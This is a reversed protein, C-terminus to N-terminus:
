CAAAWSRSSSATGCRPTMSPWWRRNPTEPPDASACKRSWRPHAPCLAATCAAHRGKGKERLSATDSCPPLVLDQVRFGIDATLRPASHVTSRLPWVALLLAAVASPVWSPERCRGPAVTDCVQQQNTALNWAKVSNDCGGSYVTAGDANWTSCLVPQEHSHAAKPVSSGNAQIEWCRM